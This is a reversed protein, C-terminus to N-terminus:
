FLKPSLSDICVYPERLVRYLGGIHLRNTFKIIFKNNFKGIIESYVTLVCM